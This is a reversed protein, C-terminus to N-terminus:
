LLKMIREKISTIAFELVMERNHLLGNKVRKVAKSVDPVVWERPYIEDAGEWPLVVPVCGAAAGDAITFHFSEFDSTSLVYDIGSYWEPMDNGHGDFFVAGRLLPDDDLRRYQAEYWALEELRNAMWPFDEPRKGKVRLIYAQDDRRLERLIDLALDLRKSQPVIGVFGLVKGNTQKRPVAQLTEVDVGNYIVVGNKEFVPNRAKAQRLMHPGVFIVKEFQDFPVKEFLTSRIEQAHLRGVLKQGARKNKAYWIANGLIWECFVTDAQAILRRSATENHQTHSSWFDLLIRFGAKSFYPYFPKIFKLDHAAILLTKQPPINPAQEYAVPPKRLALAPQTKAWEALDAPTM